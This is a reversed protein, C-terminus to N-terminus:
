LKKIQRVMIGVEACLLVTFLVAFICFTTIVQSASLNSIAAQVPLIDQITWPQRVMEAVIWGCQHCSYVLPLAIFAIIPFIAINNWRFCLWEERKYAMFMTALLYVLLFGGIMVMLHFAYFIIPVNPIAEKVDKFYGYGFYPYDELLAEEAKVMAPEDGNAKAENFRALAAHAQKGRKIRETYSVTNVPKGDIMDKGEIIDKIGPIFANPDHRGLISLGKPISIEFLMPDENNDYQKDPNIIGFGILPTGQQGEYLGEMAALKMPQTRTVEVASGDGTLMTMVIGALGVAGGVKISKVAFDVDRNKLLYWASVAVVFVGGLCWSALVTHFFKNVAVPSLAVDSFSVMVNRMQDANFEMGVPYQMWSNAVLIWWASVTAGFATLWTATLHQGASFKKWGFFMVAFFTSEMFFAFIGEVALPAGFIDGVFWSYNSWNTGFEFELIIGTAVGIAFNVGFLTMWFKCIRLWEESKTRYYITEFIAVVIGLGLTLPVFLWHYFATLAFQARSWEVVNILDM